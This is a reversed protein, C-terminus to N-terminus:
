IREIFFNATAEITTSVVFETGCNPCKTTSESQPDFSYDIDKKCNLCPAWFSDENCRTVIVKDNDDIEQKMQIFRNDKWAYNDIRKPVGDKLYQKYDEICQRCMEKKTPLIEPIKNVQDQAFNESHMFQVYFLKGFTYLAVYGLKEKAYVAIKYRGLEGNMCAAVFEFAANAAVIQRARKAIAEDNAFKSHVDKIVIDYWDLGLYLTKGIIVYDLNLTSAVFKAKKGNLELEREVKECKLNSM